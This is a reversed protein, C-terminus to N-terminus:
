RVVTLHRRRPTVGSHVPEPAGGDTPINGEAEVAKRARPRYQGPLAFPDGEEFIGGSGRVTAKGGVGHGAGQGDPPTSTDIEEWSGAGGAAVGAGAKETGAGDRRGCRPAAIVQVCYVEIQGDPVPYGLAEGAEARLASADHQAAVRSDYAVGGAVEGGDLILWLQMGSM